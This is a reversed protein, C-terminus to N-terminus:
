FPLVDEARGAEMPQPAPPPAPRPQWINPRCRRSSGLALLRSTLRPHPRRQRASRAWEASSGRTISGSSRSLAVAGASVHVASPKVAEQALEAPFQHPKPTPTTTLIHTPHTAAAQSSCCAPVSHAGPAWGLWSPPLAARHLHGLHGAEPKQRNPATRPM